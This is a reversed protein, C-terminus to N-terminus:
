PIGRVISPGLWRTVSVPLRQWIRILRGYGPNDPRMDNMEGHRVYYQWVAETPQAGWQKKFRHTGSDRTSRGFDFVRQRRQVARELLHYYMMMNVCSPNYSHLSCASPVETVGRGHLLLAAAVAKGADRVVCLEADEGLQRLIEVFLERGYVPTGLDRMTQSFVDYFEAVLPYGGWNIRFDYRQGKRVQNRVKASVSKWLREITDPLDLRMHVKSTMRGRLLPHDILQEHRLELYRVRLEDALRVARDILSLATDNSDAVVGATNVYPLSVLFRGFLLSEVLCLPLLGRTVGAETAELCYPTHGLAERLISLWIPVRCPPCREGRLVFATLRPLSASLQRGHHELIDIM